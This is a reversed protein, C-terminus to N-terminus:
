QKKISKNRRTEMINVMLLVKEVKKRSQRIPRNLGPINPVASVNWVEPTQSDVSGKDLEMDSENDAEWNDESDNPNDLDGNWNLLNETDSIIKPSRDEDSEAPHRDIRKIQRINLVQTRRGTLNKASLAPPVPSKESLKFAAECDHHFNSWSAKVIEEMDSIYGVATMQKNQACSEKQTARLTQSGQWMELFNHVKAMRHLKKEEVERKLEMDNETSNPVLVPDDGALLRSNARAYQRVVVTEHLTKGTTKLQRWGMVDGGLSFSAEVGVGHPIISFLDRAVNSLDPYKSYTEEQHRWWDTIDPLWFISSIEMRDTHYDILNPNIQGWNQPLEPPSNLYLRAATLLLAARDSQGPTTEAVNNPMLYEDDDSFLDYPDYSSQGSRSAM